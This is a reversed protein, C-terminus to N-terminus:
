SKQIPLRAQQWAMMGGTVNFVQSFGMAVLAKAAIPSRHATLCIVAIPQDKPLAKFWPPLVWNRLWSSQGMLLRPLSLNTATPAHGLVYEFRSRVDILRMSGACQTFDQLSLDVINPSSSSVSMM